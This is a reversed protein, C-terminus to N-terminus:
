LNSDNDNGRKRSQMIIHCVFLFFAPPNSYLFYFGGFSELEIENATVVEVM